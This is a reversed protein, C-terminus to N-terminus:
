SNVDSTFTGPLAALNRIKPFIKCQGVSLFALFLDAKVTVDAKMAAKAMNASLFIGFGFFGDPAQYLMKKVVDGM